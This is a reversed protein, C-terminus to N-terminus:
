SPVRELIGLRLAMREPIRLPIREERGLTLVILKQWFYTTRGFEIEDWPMRLPPHFPRFGWHVSLYLADNGAKFRVIWSYHAWWRWYVTYPFGGASPMEGYPESDTSFRGALKRWGVILSNLYCVGCGFALFAPLLLFITAYSPNHQM